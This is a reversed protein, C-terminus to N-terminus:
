VTYDKVFGYLVLHSKVVNDEHLLLNKCSKCPCVTHERKLGLRHRKVDAIFKTVHELYSPDLRSTKYMCEMDMVTFGQVCLCRFNRMDTSCYPFFCGPLELDSKREGGYPDLDLDLSFAVLDHFLSFISPNLALIM